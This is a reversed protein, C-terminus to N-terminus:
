KIRNISKRDNKQKRLKRTDKRGILLKNNMLNLDIFSCGGGRRTTLKIPIINYFYKNHIKCYNSLVGGTLGWGCVLNIFSVFIPYSCFPSNIFAFCDLITLSSQFRSSQFYQRIRKM